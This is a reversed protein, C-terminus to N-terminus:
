GTYTSGWLFSERRPSRAHIAEAVKEKGTGTEGHILVPLRSDGVRAIRDYIARMAPSEVVPDPSRGRPKAAAKAPRPAPPVPAAATARELMAGSQEILEEVTVSMSPYLAVGVLLTGAEKACASLRRALAMADEAPRDPCLVELTDKSYTATRDGAHLEARVRPGFHSVHVGGRAARVRFLALTQGPLLARRLAARFEGHSTHRLSAGFTSAGTHVSVRVPGLDIEQGPGVEARSVREGDVETGNTSGLDEVTIVGNALLFSAHKASLEPEQIVVDSPLERGIVMPVGLQLVAQELGNRHYVLLYARQPPTSAGESRRTSVRLTRGPPPNRTRDAM